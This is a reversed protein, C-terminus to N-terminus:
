ERDPPHPETAERLRLPTNAPASTNMAKFVKGTPGWREKGAKTASRHMSPSNAATDTKM